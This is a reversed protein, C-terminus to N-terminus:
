RFQRVEVMFAAPCDRRIRKNVRQLIDLRKIPRSLRDHRLTQGSPLTLDRAVFYTIAIPEPLAPQFRPSPTNNM